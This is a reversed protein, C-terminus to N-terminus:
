ANSSLSLVVRAQKLESPVPFSFGWNTWEISVAIINLSNDVKSQDMFNLPLRQSLLGGKSGKSECSTLLPM